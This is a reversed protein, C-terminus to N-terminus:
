SLRGEGDKGWCVSSKVFQNLGQLVFNLMDELFETTM